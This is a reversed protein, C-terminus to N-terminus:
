SEQKLKIIDINFARYYNDDKLKGFLNLYTGDYEGPFFMLTPITKSVKQLNNLINHSRIYPYVAGVGTIFLVNYDGGLLLKDIKPMIKTEIDLFSQLIKLFKDKSVTQEKELLREFKGREKIIEIALNYLNIELIKIGNNVM